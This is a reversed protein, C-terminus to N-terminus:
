KVIQSSIGKILGPIQKIIQFAESHISQILLKSCLDFYNEVYQNLCKIFIGFVNIPIIIKTFDTESTILRIEVVSDNNNSEVFFKIYLTLDKKYKRQIESNNGNPQEKIIKITQILDIANQYTLNYIKQYQNNISISISPNNFNKYDETGTGISIKLYGETGYFNDKHTLLSQSFWNFNENNSYM